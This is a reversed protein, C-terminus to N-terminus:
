CEKAGLTLEHARARTLSRWTSSVALAGSIRFFRGSGALAFRAPKTSRAVPLTRDEITVDTPTEALTMKIFEPTCSASAFIATMPLVTAQGARAIDSARHARSTTSTHHHLALGSTCTLIPEESVFALMFAWAENFATHARAMSCTVNSLVFLDTDSSLASAVFSVTALVAEQVTWDIFLVVHARSMAFTALTSLAVTIHAKETIDALMLAVDVVIIARNAAAM